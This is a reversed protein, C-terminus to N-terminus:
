LSVDVACEVTAAEAASDAVAQEVGGLDLVVSGAANNKEEELRDFLDKLYRMNAKVIDKWEDSRHKRKLEKLDAASIDIDAEPLEELQPMQEQQNQWFELQFEEMKHALEEMMREMKEEPVTEEASEKVNGELSKASGKRQIEEEQQLHKKRKRAVREMQRAHKIASQVEREDCEGSKLKRYLMAAKQQARAVVQGAGVSTKAQMVASSLELYSYGSKKKKGASTKTVSFGTGTKTIITSGFTGQTVSSNSVGFGM